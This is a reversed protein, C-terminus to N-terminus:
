APPREPLNLDRPPAARGMRAMLIAALVYLGASVWQVNTFGLSMALIVALVSGLVSAAGNVGYAWAVWAERDQILRIGSPFCMGMVFAMPLLLLVTVLSRVAFGYALAAEVIGPLFVQLALAALCLTLAVCKLIRPGASVPFRGAVLSGLGSGILFTAMTLTIAYTPHGLLLGFRQMASIMLFIYALGLCLFYGLTSPLARGPERKVFFLPLFICTTVLLALIALTTFLLILGVPKTQFGDLQAVWQYRPGSAKSPGADSESLWDFVAAFEHQNFFFPRDDQVPRVNYPYSSYFSETDDIALSKAYAHFPNNGTSDYLYTAESGSVRVWDRLKDLEASTFPSKKIVVAGLTTQDEGPSARIVSVHKWPEQVGRKKLVECVMTMIRLTERPAPFAFRIYTFIGDDTLHDLFDNCAEETYLYSESLVYAGNSLATFTDVGSMQILDFKEDTGRIYNRGEAVQLHIHESDLQGGSYEVLDETLYQFTRPNIEVGVIEKAESQIASKVDFGLGVGIILVKPKEAVAYSVLHIDSPPIRQNWPPMPAPADGDQFLSRGNPAEIVDLRALPTWESAVQKAGLVRGVKLFKSDAVAFEFFSMGPLLGAACAILAVVASGRLIRCEAALLAIVAGFGAIILLSAGAGLPQLTVFLLFCGLGSGLLNVFYLRNVEAAAKALALSIIYGAFFYPLSFTLFYLAIRGPRFDQFIDVAASEGGFFASAQETLLLPGALAFLGFLLGAGAISNGPHLKRMKGAAALFAGAAGFGLIAISIVLFALHQWLSYAFIRMQLVQLALSAVSVLFVGAYLGRISSDRVGTM